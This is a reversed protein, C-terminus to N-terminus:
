FALGIYSLLNEKEFLNAGRFKLLKEEFKENSSEYSEVIAKFSGLEKGGVIYAGNIPIILKNHIYIETALVALESLLQVTNLSLNVFNSDFQLLCAVILNGGGSFNPELAIINSGVIKPIPTIIGSNYIENNHSMKSFMSLNAHEQINPYNLLNYDNSFTCSIASLIDKFERAEPPIVYVIPDNVPISNLPRDVRQEYENLLPIKKLKGTNISTRRLVIDTIITEKILGDINEGYRVPFTEQLIESPINLYIEKLCYMIASDM